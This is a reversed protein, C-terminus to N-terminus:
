DQTQGLAPSLDLIQMRHETSGWRSGDELRYGLPKWDDGVLSLDIHWDALKFPQRLFRNNIKPIWSRGRGFGVASFADTMGPALAKLSDSGRLTNFDGIILDPEPFIDDTEVSEWVHKGMVWSRGIWQEIARRANTMTEQRWATPDSPLDVFWVIMPEADPDTQSLDFEVFMVWGRGSQERIPHEKNVPMNISVMGTRTMPFRSAIFANGDIRFHAPDGHVRFSYNVWREQDLPAFPAFQDLLAQRKTGWEANSVMVIDADLEFVRKAWGEEDIPSGAHNWHLIRISDSARDTPLVARQLHWIGVILFGTCALCSVLLLPRLFVGGLRRSFIAFFASLGLAMWALGLVWIPPLWWLYQSWQYQDTLIRGTIWLGLILLGFLACVKACWPMLRTRLWRSMRPM